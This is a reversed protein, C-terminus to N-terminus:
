GSAVFQSPDYGYGTYSAGQYPEGYGYSGYDTWMFHMDLMSFPLQGLLVCAFFFTVSLLQLQWYSMMDATQTFMRTDAVHAEM